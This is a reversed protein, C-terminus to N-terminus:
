KASSWSNGWVLIEPEGSLGQGGAILLNGDNSFRLSHLEIMGTRLDYLERGTLTQILTVRDNAGVAITSGDPSLDVDTVSAAGLHIILPEEWSENHYVYVTSRGHVLIMASRDESVAVHTAKEQLLSKGPETNCFQDPM